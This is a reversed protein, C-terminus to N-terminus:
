AGFVLFNQVSFIVELYDKSDLELFFENDLGSIKSAIIGLYEFDYVMNPLVVNNKMRYEKQSDLIIKGSITEIKLEIKKVEKGEWDIPKELDIIKM